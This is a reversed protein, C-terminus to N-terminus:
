MYGNQLILCKTYTSINKFIRCLTVKLIPNKLMKLCLLFIVM